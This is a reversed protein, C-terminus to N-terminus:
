RWACARRRRAAPARRAQRRRLNGSAAPLRPHRRRADRGHRPPLSDGAKITVNDGAFTGIRLKPGQLDVMIGIPRAHKAEIARINDYRAKLNAHDSHSMNIRFVDVGALFLKEIMEPTSSAPGLTAVIKAQRQRRM